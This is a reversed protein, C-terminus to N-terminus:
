EREGAWARADDELDFASTERIGRNATRCVKITYRYDCGDIGDVIEEFASAESEHPFMEMTASQQCFFANVWLEAPEGRSMRALREAERKQRTREVVTDAATKVAAMARAEAESRGPDRREGAVLVPNGRTSSGLGHAQRYTENLRNVAGFFGSTKITM